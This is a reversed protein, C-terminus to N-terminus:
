SAAERPGPPLLRRNVTLIPDVLAEAAETAEPPDLPNGEQDRSRRNGRAIRGALQRLKHYTDEWQLELSEQRRSCEAVAELTQSLKESSASCRKSSRSFFGFGALCLAVGSLLLSLFTFFDM